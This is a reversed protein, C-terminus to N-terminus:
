GAPAAPSTPGGVDDLVVQAQRDVLRTFLEQAYGFVVAWALIQASSDLDSLGPVFQGRLLLVGLVATLAGTPLKLVALAVPLSYPTSTGRIHRLGAAAAVAAAILGILAVLPVDWGTTTRRVVDDVDAAGARSSEGMPCVVKSDPTFCLPMATPSTAGLVALGAAAVTLLVAAVILVNRFSRVRMVERRGASGAARAAAVIPGRDAPKLDGNVAERALEEVRQRRPDDSPLHQRTSAVVSPLQGQVFPLPALRLVDAEAADINSETREIAAGSAWLRLRAIGGKAGTEAARRAESLHREIVGWISDSVTDTVSPDGQRTERLWAALTHLEAIRTLAHERWPATTPGGIASPLSLGHWGGQGIGEAAGVGTMKGNTAQGTHARKSPAM